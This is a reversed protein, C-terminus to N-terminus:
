VPVNKLAINLDHTFFGEGNLRIESIPKDLYMLQGRESFYLGPLRRVLELLVSGKPMEYADTNYILTDGKMYM